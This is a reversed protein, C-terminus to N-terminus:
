DLHIFRIVFVVVEGEGGSSWEQQDWETPFDNIRETGELEELATTGAYCRCRRKMRIREGEEDRDTRSIDDGGGVREPSRREGICRLKRIENLSKLRPEWSPSATGRSITQPTQLQEFKIIM